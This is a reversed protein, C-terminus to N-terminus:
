LEGILPMSSASGTGHGVTGSVGRRYDDSFRRRQFTGTEADDLYHSLSRKRFAELVAEPADDGAAAEIHWDLRIVATVLANLVCSRNQCVSRLRISASM